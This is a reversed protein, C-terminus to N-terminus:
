KLFRDVLQHMSAGIGGAVLSVGFLIGYGKSRTDNLSDINVKLLNVSTTLTEVSQILRGFQVADFKNEDIVRSGIM